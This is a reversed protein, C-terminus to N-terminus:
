RPTSSIDMPASNHEHVNLWRRASRRLGTTVRVRMDISGGQTLAGFYHNLYYSFGVAGNTTIEPDRMSVNILGAFGAFWTAARQQM